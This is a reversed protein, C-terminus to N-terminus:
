EIELGCKWGDHYADIQYQVTPRGNEGFFVPRKISDKHAKSAEVAFGLQELGPRVTALVADSNLGDELILTSIRGAHGQFVDRVAATFPPPPKTRPFTGFSISA